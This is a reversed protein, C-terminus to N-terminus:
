RGQQLSGIRTPDDAPRNRDQLEHRTPGSRVGQPRDGEVQLREEGDDVLVRDGDNGGIDELEEGVLAAVARHDPEGVALRPQRGAGDGTPQRRHRAEIRVQHGSAVRRDLRVRHRLPQGGASTTTPDSPAAPAPAGCAAWSGRARGFDVCQDTRHAGVPVPGHDEGHHEATQPAALHEPQSEGVDLDGLARQEDGLALAAVLPDHGDGVGEEGLQALVQHVLPRLVSRGIPDEHGQLARAPALSQTGLSHLRDEQAGALTGSELPGGAVLESVGAEGPQPLRAHREFGDLGLGPVDRDLRGPDVQVQGVVPQGVLVVLGDPGDIGV